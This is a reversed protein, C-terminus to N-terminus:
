NSSQEAPKLFDSTRMLTQEVFKQISNWYFDRKGRLKASKGLIETFSRAAAISTHPENLFERIECSSIYILVTFQHVILTIALYLFENPAASGSSFHSSFCSLLRFITQYLISRLISHSSQLGCLRIAKYLMWNGSLDCHSHDLRDEIRWM